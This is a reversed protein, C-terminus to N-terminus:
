LSKWVEEIDPQYEIQNVIQSSSVDAVKVGRYDMAVFVAFLLVCIMLRIGITEPMKEDGQGYLDSYIAKYRPHVAPIQRQDSYMSRTQNLLEKRRKESNNM